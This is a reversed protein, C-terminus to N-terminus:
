LFQLVVVDLNIFFYLSVEKERCFDEAAQGHDDASDKFKTNATDKLLKQIGTPGLYSTDGQRLYLVDKGGM